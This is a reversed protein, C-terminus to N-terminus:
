IVPADAAPRVEDLVSRPLRDWRVGRVAGELAYLLNLSVDGARHMAVQRFVAVAGRRHLEAPTTVGAAVLWGASVPGLNPLAALSAIPEALPRSRM